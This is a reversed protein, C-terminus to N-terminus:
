GGGWARVEPGMIMSGNAGGTGREALGEVAEAEETAAADRARGRADDDDRGDDVRGVLASRRRAPAREADAEDAEATAAGNRVSESPPSAGRSRGGSAGEARTERAPDCREDRRAAASPSVRWAIRQPTERAEVAEAGVAMDDGEVAEAERLLLLPRM